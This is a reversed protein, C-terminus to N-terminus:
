IETVLVISPACSCQFQIYAMSSNSSSQQAQIPCAHEDQLKLSIFKDKIYAIM